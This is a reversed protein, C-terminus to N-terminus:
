SKSVSRAASYTAVSSLMRLIDSTLQRFDPVTDVTLYKSRLAKFLFLGSDRVLMLTSVTEPSVANVKGSM